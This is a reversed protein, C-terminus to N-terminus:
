TFLREKLFTSYGSYFIMIALSKLSKMLAELNKFIEAKIIVSPHPPMWGFKLKRKNFKGAKWTRIINNKSSRQIFLIDSFVIDASEKNIIEVYKTIINNESFMDDSNLFIM